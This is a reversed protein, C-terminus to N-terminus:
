GAENLNDLERNADSVNQLLHEKCKAKVILGEDNDQQDFKKARTM